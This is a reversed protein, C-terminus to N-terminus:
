WVVPIQEAPYVSPAFFWTEIAYRPVVDDDDLGPMPATRHLNLDDFLLADGPEFSPRVVGAPGAVRDVMGQGISWDFWAGDTGTPCVEPLRRSVVDLGPCNTAGGCSSLALWVNMSRIGAGLFAGDQHWDGGRAMAVRRLTAKKASLVPREGLYERLVRRLGVSRFSELLDFMARPSDVTWMGGNTVVFKRGGADFPYHRQPRFPAFWPAGSEVSDVETGECRDFAAFAHDIDTILRDVVPPGLLGRVLLSGQGHISRALVEASLHAGEIEPIGEGRDPVGGFGPDNSSELPVPPWPGGRPGRPLERFARHRAQVLRAELKPSSKRRNAEDFLAIADLWRHENWASEADVILQARDSTM